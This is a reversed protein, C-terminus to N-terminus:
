LRSSIPGVNLIVGSADYPMRFVAIYTHWFIWRKKVRVKHLRYGDAIFKNIGNIFKNVDTSRVYLRAYKM